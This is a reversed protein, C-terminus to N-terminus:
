RLTQSDSCRYRMSRILARPDPCDSPRHRCRDHKAPPGIGALDPQAADQDVGGRLCGDVFDPVLFFIDTTTGHHAAVHRADPGQYEVALKLVGFIRTTEHN